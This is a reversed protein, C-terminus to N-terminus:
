FLIQVLGFWVLTTTNPDTPATKKLCYKKKGFNFDLQFNIKLLTIFKM